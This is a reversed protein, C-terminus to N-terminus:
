EVWTIFKDMDFEKATEPPKSPFGIVCGDLEYEGKPLGLLELFRDNKSMLGTASILQFGLGLHTATLWMNQMAHALSQKEVPPFGKKEAVIIYYPANKLSPIGSDSVAKLREAFGKMKKRLFPLLMLTIDLKASSKKLQSFLLEVAETMKESNQKLVFVKRTESLPIGTASAYPAYIASATIEKVAEIRPVEDTFSRVSRRSRIIQEFTEPM